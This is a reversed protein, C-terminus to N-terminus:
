NSRAFRFYYLSSALKFLWSYYSESIIQCTLLIEFYILLAIFIMKDILLELEESKCPQHYIKKM